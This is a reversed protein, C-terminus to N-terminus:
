GRYGNTIPLRRDKGFAKPASGCARRASAASTSTSTSWAPSAACSPRTTAWSSSRPPPATTRSTSRAPDPRAGRVAAPEPRRAPRPAARGVAAQHDRQETIIERGDRRNVYRCLDYVRTKLVDKIVAYGGVSDGYLTFYGVAMESKNGTTLVMWGFKNSLAM